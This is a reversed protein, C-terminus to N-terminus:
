MSKLGKPRRGNTRESTNNLAQEFFSLNANKKSTVVDINNCFNNYRQMEIATNQVPLSCKERFMSNCLLATSKLLLIM